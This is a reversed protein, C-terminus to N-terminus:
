QLEECGFVNAGPVLPSKQVRPYSVCFHKHTSFWTDHLHTDTPRTCAGATNMTATRTCHTLQHDHQVHHTRNFHQRDHMHEYVGFITNSGDSTVASSVFQRSIGEFVWSLFATAKDCATGASKREFNSTRVRIRGSEARKSSDQKPCTTEEDPPQEGQQRRKRASIM